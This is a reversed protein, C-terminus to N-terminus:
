PPFGTRCAPWYPWRQSVVVFTRVTGGRGGTRARSDCGTAFQMRVDDTRAGGESRLLELVHGVGAQGDVALGWLVPRGIGVANAGLALAKLVDTGRRIGGDMLVPVRGEVADAIPPLLDITAPVTDLQRGGHNSVIIADAGHSLALRADAPHMIGKVVIKLSTIKRLWELHAM